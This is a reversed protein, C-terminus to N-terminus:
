YIDVSLTLETGLKSITGNVTYDAGFKANADLTTELVAVNKIGAMAAPVSVFLTLLLLFTSKKV